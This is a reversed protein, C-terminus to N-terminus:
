SIAGISSLRRILLSLISATPISVSKNRNVVLDFFILGGFCRVLPSRANEIGPCSLPKRWAGGICTLFFLNM